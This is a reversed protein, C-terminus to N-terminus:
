SRPWSISYHSNWNIFSMVLACSEIHACDKRLDYTKIANHACQYTTCPEDDTQWVEGPNYVQGEHQCPCESNTSVCEVGNYASGPLCECCSMDPIVTSNISQCVVSRTYTLPDCNDVMQEDANCEHVPVFFVNEYDNTNM